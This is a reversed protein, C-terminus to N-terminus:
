KTDLRDTLTGWIAIFQIFTCIICLLKVSDYWDLVISLTALIPVCYMLVTFVFSGIIYILAKMVYRRELIARSSADM